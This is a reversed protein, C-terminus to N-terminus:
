PVATLSVLFNKLLNLRTEEGFLLKFVFDNKPSLTTKKM